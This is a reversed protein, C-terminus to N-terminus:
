RRAPEDVGLLKKLALYGRHARVKVASVSSGTILAAEAVSRGHLKILVLAERQGPSLRSLADLTRRSLAQFDERERQLEEPVGTLAAHEEASPVSSLAARFRRRRRLEDVAVRHMITYLWPLPDAGRVYAARATHVKLFGRQVVDEGSARDGVLCMAYHLLRGAVLEYLTRFADSDGDCYRNM